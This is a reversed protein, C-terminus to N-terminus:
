GEYGINDVVRIYLAQLSTAMCRFILGWVFVRDSTVITTNIILGKNMAVTKLMWNVVVESYV